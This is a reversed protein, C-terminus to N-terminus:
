SRALEYQILPFWLESNRWNRLDLRFDETKYMNRSLSRSAFTSFEFRFIYVVLLRFFSYESLMDLRFFKLVYM